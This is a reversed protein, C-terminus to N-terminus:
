PNNDVVLTLPEHGRSNDVVGVRCSVVHRSTVRGVFVELSVDSQLDGHDSATAQTARSHRRVRPFSRAFRLGMGLFLFGESRM